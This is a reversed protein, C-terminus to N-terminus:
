GWQKELWSGAAGRQSPALRHLSLPLTSPGRRYALSGPALAAMLTTPFLPSLTFVLTHPWAQSQPKSPTGKAM